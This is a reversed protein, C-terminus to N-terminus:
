VNDGPIHNDGDTVRNEGTHTKNDEKTAAFIPGADKWSSLETPFVVSKEVPSAVIEPFTRMPGASNVCGYHSDVESSVCSRLVHSIHVRLPFFLPTVVLILPTLCAFDAPAGDELQGAM